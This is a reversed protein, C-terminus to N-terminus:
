SNENKKELLLKRQQSIYNWASEYIQYRHAGKKLLQWTFSELKPHCKNCLTVLNLDENSRSIKWPIIHHVHLHDHRGCIKCMHGDRQLVKKRIKPWDKGYKKVGQM